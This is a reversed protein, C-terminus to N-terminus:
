LNDKNSRRVVAMIMIITILFFQDLNIWMSALYSFSNSCNIKVGQAHGFKLAILITITIM